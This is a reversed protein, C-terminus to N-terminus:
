VRTRNLIKLLREEKIRQSHEARVGYLYLCPNMACSAMSGFFVLATHIAKQTDTHSDTPVLCAVTYLFGSTLSGLVVFKFDKPCTSRNPNTVRSCAGSIVECQLCLLYMVFHVLVMVGFAYQSGLSSDRLHPLPVCLAQQGFFPWQLVVPVTTLLLSSAWVGACIVNVKSPTLRPVVAQCRQLCRDLTLIATFFTAAHRCSLALVGAVQCVAGRRWTNDQWVYQGALLRDALGLVALYLGMGLDAVSLHTLVVGGSSLRWTNRVCVRLTLSVVNGLLSLTALVAVATRHMLSGLLDDCSSVDDSTVQCHNLHFGPPLVSRCCLKFNDTFLQQLDLFGSLMDLSFETIVCGRLDLNRLSTVPMQSTNWQLLEVGCNSLNLTRLNPFVLFLGPDMSHMKVSSLDLTHLKRLETNYVNVSTFMSALPNGALFLVTLQPMRGFHHGSVETLLNDSLDLSHLNDFTVNSVTTVGCMALSLHVLMLNDGFQHMNMGSGRADLYRLEPFQHTALVQRCFFALGHCTCMPPCTQDCLLEDDHQPCLPWDDCVHSMHVCVKSARCRYFGPCTYVDCGTEDEHGPCDYVGNCRVFVPLCYDKDPCWFHTEPCLFDVNGEDPRLSRVFIEGTRSFEVIVPMPFQTSGRFGKWCGHEDSEDICQTIGDCRASETICQLAYEANYVFRLM